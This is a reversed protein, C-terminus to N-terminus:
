ENRAPIHAFVVRHAYDAALSLKGSYALNELRKSERM